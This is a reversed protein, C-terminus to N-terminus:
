QRCRRLPRGAHIAGGGRSGRRDRRHDGGKGAALGSAKVVIPARQAALWAADFTARTFKRYGATPIGHRDLFEKTFAKSGELQAAAKGPGFCPLGRALFVDVIGAVLPVEPGVITLAVGRAPRM